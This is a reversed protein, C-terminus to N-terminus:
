ITSLSRVGARFRVLLSGKAVHEIKGRGHEPHDIIEGSRYRARKSFERVETAADLEAFLASREAEKREKAVRKVKAAGREVPRPADATKRKRAPTTRYGHRAGCARCLVQKPEDGVMAVINHTHPGKCAGCWAELEDGVSPGRRVRRPPPPPLPLTPFGDAAPLPLEDVRDWQTDKALPVAEGHSRRPLWATDRRLLMVQRGYRREVAVHDEEAVQAVIKEYAAVTDDVSRRCARLDEPKQFQEQRIRESEELVDLIKAMLKTLKEQLDHDM